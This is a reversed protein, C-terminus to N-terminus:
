TGTYRNVHITADFGIGQALFFLYALDGYGWNSEYGRSIIEVCLLSTVTFIYGPVFHCKWGLFVDGFHCKWKKTVMVGVM